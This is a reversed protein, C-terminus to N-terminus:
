KALNWRARRNPGHAWLSRCGFYDHQSRSLTRLISMAKTIDGGPVTGQNVSLLRSQQAGKESDFVGGNSSHFATQRSQPRARYSFARPCPVPHLVKQVWAVVSPLRSWGTRRALPYTAPAITQGRLCSSPCAPSPPSTISKIGHYQHENTPVLLAPSPHERSIARPHQKTTM